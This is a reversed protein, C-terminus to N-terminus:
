QLVIEYWPAWIQGAAQLHLGLGDPGPRSASAPLAALRRGAGDLPYVTARRKGTRLQVHAEVREMWVPPSAEWSGSPRDSGRASPSLTWWQGDNKYPILAQPRPPNAGPQSGVVAGPLTLLLRGSDNLPRNDLSTLLIGIQGRASDALRVSLAGASASGGKGLRGFVGALRDNHLTLLGRRRDHTMDGSDAQITQGPSQRLAPAPAQNDVRRFAVRHRLALDPAIGLTQRLYQGPTRESRAEAAALRQSRSLPVSLLQRGPAIRATRFLWASQGFNVLKAWDGNLDFHRPTALDWDTHHAYSYHALGDWDQFSAFAATIPDIEAGQRNPYPQNFESVLYPKGAERYWAMDLLPTPDAALSLDRIRWDESDWGKGPFNYHDSYFHNDLYDLAAHSDANLYGGYLMQTGTVPVRDGLAPRIARLMRDLYARDTDVLFNLFDLIRQNTKGAQAPSATTGWDLGARDALSRAKRLARQWLSNQDPRYSVWEPTILPVSGAEEEFQGECGAWARCRSDRDPYRRALWATWQRRLEDEYAGSLVRSWAGTQWFSLLSSENNIEVLGLVPDDRLNLAQALQAVAQAQLDLMRPHFIHLPKSHEPFDSSSAPPVGDRFPDFAYGVHLNLNAYIGEARLADLFGRLRKVAVPNLTPFPQALWLSGAIEPREDPHTDMHHLRVLNVGLKRLRRAIRVADKAEPFNADFALNVGFLRVREDDPTHPQRDRGVRHLHGDRTFLRDEPGLPHNLHSFDVAGALNDQDVRFPYHSGSTPSGPPASYYEAPALTACCALALAGAFSKLM